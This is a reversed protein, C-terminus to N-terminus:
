RLFNKSGVPPGRGEVVDGSVGKPPAGNKKKGNALWNAVSM